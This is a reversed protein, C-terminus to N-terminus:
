YILNKICDNIREKQNPFLVVLRLLDKRIKQSFSSRRYSSFENINRTKEIFINSM